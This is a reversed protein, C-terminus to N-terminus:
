NRYQELTTPEILPAINAIAAAHGANFLSALGTMAPHLGYQWGRPDATALDLPLLASRDVALGGTSQSGGRTTAYVDYEAQSHPVLANWSDNGGFLFICVLAKYGPMANGGAMQAFSVGPTHALAYAGGGAAAARLFKRRTIRDM